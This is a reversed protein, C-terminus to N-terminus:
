GEAPDGLRGGHPRAHDGLGALGRHERLQLLPAHAVAAAAARSADAAGPPAAEGPLEVLDLRRPAAALEGESSQLLRMLQETADYRMTLLEFSRSPQQLWRRLQKGGAKSAVLPELLTLLSLGETPRNSVRMQM